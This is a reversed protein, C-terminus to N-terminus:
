RERTTAIDPKPDEPDDTVASRKGTTKSAKKRITALCGIFSVDILKKLLQFVYSNIYM